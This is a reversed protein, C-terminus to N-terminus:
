LWDVRKFIVYFIACGAVMIALSFPYGMLWHLEPMHQFNMGYVGAVLSPFFLIGAWASIKKMHENQTISLENMRRMDENQRESILTSNVTFIERLLQRLREIRETASHVHDAVDRLGRALDPPATHQELVTSVASMLPSLPSVARELEILERSLRYVQQSPIPGTGFLQEELGDARDELSILLPDYDDVVRDMIRYLASFQAHDLFRPDDEFVTRVADIDFAPTHRVVIIFDTGLFIHLEGIVVETIEAEEPATRDLGAADAEAAEPTHPARPAAHATTLAASSRPEAPGSDVAPAEAFRNLLSHEPRRGPRPAAPRLVMFDTSGYREYKPRQHAEVADEVALPHLDFRAALEALEADTPRLMDIWLFPPADPNAPAAALADAAETITSLHTSDEGDTYLVFTGSTSATDPRRPSEGPASGGPMGGPGPPAEDSPDSM